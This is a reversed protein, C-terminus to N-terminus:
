KPAIILEKYVTAKGTQNNIGRVRSVPKLLCDHFISRIAASDNLTVLWRGRLRDLTERLALVDSDKWAAYNTPTCETYLFRVRAPIELLMPIREDARKQDEVTVGIWINSPIEEGTFWGDLWYAWDPCDDGDWEAPYSAIM